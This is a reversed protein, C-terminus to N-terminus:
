HILPDISPHTPPNTSPHTPPHIFAWYMICPDLMPSIALKSLVQKMLDGSLFYSDGKHFLDRAIKKKTATEDTYGDFRRMPDKEKILGVVQGVQEMCRPARTRKIWREVVEHLRDSRSLAALRVECSRM